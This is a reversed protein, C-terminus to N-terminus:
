MTEPLHAQPLGERARLPSCAVIEDRRLGSLVGRLELFQMWLVESSQACLVCPGLCNRGYVQPLKSSLLFDFGSEFPLYNEVSIEPPIM